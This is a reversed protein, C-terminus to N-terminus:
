RIIFGVDVSLAPVIDFLKAIPVFYNRFPPGMEGRTLVGVLKGNHFVAGGSSGPGGISTMSELVEDELDATGIYHAFGIMFERRPYGVHLLKDTPKLTDTSLIAPVYRSQACTGKLDFVVLAIDNQPHVSVSFAKAGDLRVDGVEIVHKATVVGTRCVGSADFQSVIVGSGVRGYRELALPVVSRIVDPEEATVALYAPASFLILALLLLLKKM